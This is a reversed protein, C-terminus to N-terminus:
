RPANTRIFTDIVGDILLDDITTSALFRSFLLSGALSALGANANVDSALEGSEVGAGIIAGFTAGMEDLFTDRVLAVAHDHLAREMMLAIVRTRVPDQLDTALHTLLTRLDTRLHGTLHGTGPRNKGLADATAFLLDTREPYHKYVTTRSVGAAEAVRAHTIADPGEDLLLTAAAQAM